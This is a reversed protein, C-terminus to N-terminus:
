RSELFSLYITKKNTQPAVAATLLQKAKSTNHLSIKSPRIKLKLTPMKCNKVLLVKFLPQMM